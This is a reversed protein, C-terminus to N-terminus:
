GLFPEIEIARGQPHRLRGPQEIRDNRRDAPVDDHALFRRSGGKVGRLCGLTTCCDTCVPRRFLSNVPAIPVREEPMDFPRYRPGRMRSGDIS